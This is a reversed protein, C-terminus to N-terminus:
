AQDGQPGRRSQAVSRECRRNAGKLQLAGGVTSQYAFHGASLPRHSETGGRDLLPLLARLWRAAASAPSGIPMALSHRALDSFFSVHKPKRTRADAGAGARPADGYAIQRGRSM